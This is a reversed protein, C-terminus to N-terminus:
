GSEEMLRPLDEASYTYNGNGDYMTDETTLEQAM